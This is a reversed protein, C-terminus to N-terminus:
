GDGERNREEYEGKLAAKQIREIKALEHRLKALHLAMLPDM